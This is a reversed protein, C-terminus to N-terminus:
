FFIDIREKSLSDFSYLKCSRALSSEFDASIIWECSLMFGLIPLLTMDKNLPTAKKRAIQAGGAKPADTVTMDYIEYSLGIILTAKKNSVSLKKANAKLKMELEDYRM